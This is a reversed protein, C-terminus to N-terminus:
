KFGASVVSKIRPHAKLNDTFDRINLGNSDAAADTINGFQTSFIAFTSPPLQFTNGSHAQSTTPNPKCFQM